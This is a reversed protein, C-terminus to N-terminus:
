SLPGTQIVKELIEVASRVMKPCTDTFLNHERAYSLGEPTSIDCHLLGRCLYSGFVAQSCLFGSSFLKEAKDEKNM